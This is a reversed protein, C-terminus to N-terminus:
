TVSIQSLGARAKHWGLQYCYMMGVSGPLHRPVPLPPPCPDLVLWPWSCFCCHLRLTCRLRQASGPLLESLISHVHSWGAIAVFGSKARRSFHPSFSGGKLFCLVIRTLSHFLLTSLQFAFLNSIPPQSLCIIFSLASFRAPCHCSFEGNTVRM